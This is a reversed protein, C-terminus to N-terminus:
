WEEWIKAGRVAEQKAVLPFSAGTCSLVVMPCYSCANLPSDLLIVNATKYQGLSVANIMTPLTTTGPHYYKREAMITKLWNLQREQCDCHAMARRIPEPAAEKKRCSIVLLALGAIVLSLHKMTKGVLGWDKTDPQFDLLYEPKFLINKQSFISNESPKEM